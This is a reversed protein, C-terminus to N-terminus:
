LGGAEVISEIERTFSDIMRRIKMSDEGGIRDINMYLIRTTKILRFLGLDAARKIREGHLRAEELLAKNEQLYKRGKETIRYVIYRKCGYQKEIPEVYGKRALNKLVPYIMAPSPKFGYREKILNILGYGHLEQKDLADLFMIEVYRKVVRGIRIM